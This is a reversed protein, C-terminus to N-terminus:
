KGFSCKERSWAGVREVRESHFSGNVCQYGLQAWIHMPCPKHSQEPQVAEKRRDRHPELDQGDEM